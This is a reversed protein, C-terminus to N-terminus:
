ENQGPFVVRDLFVEMTQARPTVVELKLEPRKSIFDRLMDKLLAASRVYDETITERPAGMRRLLLASVVGTRDKGANCFYLVGCPSEEVTRVIREMQGDVMDLYAAPVDEFCHPVIDGTTVPMSRYDFRIDDELPCPRERRERDARLDIVLRVDHELLFRKEEETIRDPVDSRLYRFSGSVLQRTNLTSHLLSEM